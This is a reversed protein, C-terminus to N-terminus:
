FIMMKKLHPPTAVPPDVALSSPPFTPAPSFTISAVTPATAPPPYEAGPVDLVSALGHIIGNNALVDETVITADNVTYITEGEVELIEITLTTGAPTTYPLDGNVMNRTPIIQPSIVHGSLLKTAIGKNSRFYDLAGEPLANFAEDSPAFVTATLDPGFLMSLGTFQLLELLISFGELSEVLDVLSTVIFSPLLLGDIKHLVGDSSIADVAVVTVSSDATSLTVTDNAITVTIDEGNVATVVQGDMLDTSLVQGEVVHMLFLNRLHTIYQEDAYTMFLDTYENFASNTPAFLTVPDFFEDTINVENAKFAAQLASLEPDAAIIEEFNQANSVGWCLINLTALAVIPLRISWLVVM